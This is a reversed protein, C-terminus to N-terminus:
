HSKGDNLMWKQTGGSWSVMNYMHKTGDSDASTRIDDFILSILLARLLSSTGPSSTSSM